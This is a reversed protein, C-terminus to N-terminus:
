KSGRTTSGPSASPRPAPAPPCDPLAQGRRYAQALVLTAKEDGVQTLRVTVPLLDVGLCALRHLAQVTFAVTPRYHGSKDSLRELRGGRVIIEGAAAVPGGAVFSSHHFQGVPPAVKAYFRGDDTMVFIAGRNGTDLPAGDVDVLLGDHVDIRYPEAEASEFYAVKTGWVEGKEEGHMLEILPQTAYRRPAGACAWAAALGCGLAIRAGVHPGVRM